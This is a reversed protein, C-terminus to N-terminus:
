GDVNASVDAPVRGKYVELDFMTGKASRAPSALANELTQRVVQGVTMRKQRAARTIRSKLPNPLEVTMRTM